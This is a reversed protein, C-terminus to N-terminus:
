DKIKNKGAERGKALCFRINQILQLVPLYDVLLSKRNDM